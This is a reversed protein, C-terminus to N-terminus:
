SKARKALEAFSLSIVIKKSYVIQHKMFIAEKYPLHVFNWVWNKKKLVFFFGPDSNLFYMYKLWSWFKSLVYIEFYWFSRHYTKGLLSIKLVSEHCYNLFSVFLFFFISIWRACFIIVLVFRCNCVVHVWKIIFTLFHVERHTSLLSLDAHIDTSIM